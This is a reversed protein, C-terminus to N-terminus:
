SWFIVAVSQELTMLGANVFSVVMIITAGSSQIVMTLVCGASLLATFTM